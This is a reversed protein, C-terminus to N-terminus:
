SYIFSSLSLRLIGRIKGFSPGTAACNSQKSADQFPTTHLLFTEMKLEVPLVRLTFDLDPGFLDHVSFGHQSHIFNQPVVLVHKGNVWGEVFFAALGP